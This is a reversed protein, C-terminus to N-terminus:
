NVTALDFDDLAVPSWGGDRWHVVVVVADHADDTEDGFADILTCIDGIEGSDNIALRASLNVSTVNM